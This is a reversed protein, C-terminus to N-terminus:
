RSLYKSVHQMLIDISAGTKQIDPRRAAHPVRLPLCDILRGLATVDEDLRGMAGAGAKVVGRGILMKELDTPLIVQPVGLALAFNATGLGGHHIIFPAQPLVTSFDLPQSSISVDSRETKPPSGIYARAHVDRHPFVSLVAEISPHGKPLYILAHGTRQDAGELISLEPPFYLTDTRYAAYPDLAPLTFVFNTEGRLTSAFNEVHHGSAIQFAGCIAGEASCVSEANFAGEILPPLPVLAPPITWGNGIVIVPVRGCAALNLTPAMDSIVVDPRFQMLLNAWADLVPKILEADAFGIDALIEALSSAPSRKEVRHLFIPAQGLIFQGPGDRRGVSALIRRARQVDRVAAVVTWGRERLARVIPVLRALHGEGAGLEWGILVTPASNHNDNM